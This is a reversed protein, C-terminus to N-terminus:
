FDVHKWNKGTVIDSISNRKLGFREALVKQKVGESFLRRIIKVDEETILSRYSNSGKPMLGDVSAQRINQKQTIYELNLAHNNLKNSDKHNVVRNTKRKGIFVLAVLVHVAFKATKGKKCLTVALYNRRLDGKLLRNFKVNRVRGFDSIEYLSEYKPIPKWVENEM